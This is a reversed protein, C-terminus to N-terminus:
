KKKRNKRIAHKIESNGAKSKSNNMSMNNFVAGATKKSIFFSCSHLEKELTLYITKLIPKKVNLHFTEKTLSLRLHNLQPIITDGQTVPFTPVSCDLLLSRHSVASSSPSSM